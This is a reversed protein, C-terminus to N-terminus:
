ARRHVEENRVRDMRSVGVLTRLCKMESEKELCKEYGMGRSLVIGKCVCILARFCTFSVCLGIKMVQPDTYYWKHEKEAQPQRHEPLPLFGAPPNILSQQIAVNAQASANPPQQLCNQQSNGGLHTKTDEDVLKSVLDDAASQMHDLDEERYSEREKRNEAASVSHQHQLLQSQSSLGRRLSNNIDSAVSNSMCTPLSNHISSSSSSNVFASTSTSPTMHGLQSNSNIGISAVHPNMGNGHSNSLTSSIPAAVGSSTSAVSQGGTCKMLQQHAIQRSLGGNDGNLTDTVERGDGSTPPSNSGEHCLDGPSSTSSDRGGYGNVLACSSLHRSSGDGSNLNHELAESLRKQFLFSSPNFFKRSCCSALM